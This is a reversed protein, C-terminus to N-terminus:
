PVIKISITMDVGRRVLRIDVRSANRLTTYVELAKDASTLPQGNIAQITDGNTLGIRSYLSTVRIAYIKFGDPQGNKLAPVLRAGKAIAMPNALVDDVLSRTVEYHTDDIKRIKAAVTADLADTPDPPPTPGTATGPGTGTGPTAAAVRDACGRPSRPGLGVVFADAKEAVTLGAAGVADTFLQVAQKPTVQASIIATVTTANKAIDPDFDVRKCTLGGIWVALDALSIDPKMTVALKADAAPKRCAPPAPVPAPAPAPAAARPAAGSSGDPCRRSAVPDLRIVFADSREAVVLGAKQVVEVFLRMAQAPTMASPAILALKTAHRAAEADFVVSKCSFGTVWVALDRLTLDPTFQVTLKADPPPKKCTYRADDDALARGPSALLCAGALLIGIPWRM